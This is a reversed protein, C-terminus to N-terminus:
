AGDVVFAAWYYPHNFPIEKGDRALAFRQFQEDIANAKRGGTATRLEQMRGALDDNTATRLWRQAAGLADAPSMGELHLQYFYDMLLMTAADNVPWLSSVVAAAGAQLFGSRLGLQEEAARRIEFFGTECASLVVLRARTLALHAIIDQLTLEGNAFQLSSRLAGSPDYRGHCAFHLYQVSGAKHFIQDSTAKRGRLRRRSSPKFQALVLEGEASAFRLDKTGHLVALVSAPVRPIAQARRVSSALVAISPACSVVFDDSFCREVDGVSHMAAHVPLIGLLGPCVLIVDGGPALGLSRARAEVPAILVDWLRRCTVMITRRWRDPQEKRNQYAPLWGEDGVLLHHLNDITFADLRLAHDERLTSTGGPIVFVATGIDTVIPAVVLGTPPIMALLAQSSLLRGPSREPRLSEVAEVLADRAAQLELAIRPRHRAPARSALALHEAELRRVLEQAAAIRMTDSGALSGADLISIAENLVRARGEELRVLAEDLRCLRVLCYADRFFLPGSRELEVQRGQWTFARAFLIREVAIAGAFV